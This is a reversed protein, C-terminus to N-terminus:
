QYKSQYEYFTLMVEFNNSYFIFNKFGLCLVIKDLIVIFFLLGLKWGVKLIPAPNIKSKGEGYAIKKKLASAYFRSVWPM